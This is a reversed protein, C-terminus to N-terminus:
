GFDGGADGVYAGWVGSRTRGFWGSLCRRNSALPSLPPFPRRHSYCHLLLWLSLRHHSHPRFTVSYTLSVAQCEQATLCEGSTSVPIMAQTTTRDTSQDSIPMPASGFSNQSSVSDSSTITDTMASSDGQQPYSIVRAVNTRQWISGAMTSHRATYTM